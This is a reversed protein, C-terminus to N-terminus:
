IRPGFLPALQCPDTAYETSPPCVYWGATQVPHANYVPVLVASMTTLPLSNASAPQDLVLHM